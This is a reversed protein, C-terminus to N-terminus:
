TVFLVGDYNVRVTVLNDQCFFAVFITLDAWRVQRLLRLLSAALYAPTRLGFIDLVQLLSFLFRLRVRQDRRALASASLAGDMQLAQSGPQFGLAGLFLVLALEHELEVLNVTFDALLDQWKFDCVFVLNHVDNPYFFRLFIKDDQLTQLIVLFLHEMDDIRLVKHIVRFLLDPNATTLVAVDAHDIVDGDGSVMGENM